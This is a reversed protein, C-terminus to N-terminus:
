VTENISNYWVGEIRRAEEIAAQTTPIDSIVKPVIRITLSLRTGREIIAGIQLGEKNANVVHEAITDSETEEIGHFHTTYAEDTFILLSRPQLYVSMLPSEKLATRFDIMAPGCISLIAVKPFYLPGDKHPMIGQGETYENLLVHNPRQHFVGSSVLREAIELLFQPLEEVLMGRSNPIGGWNQLRRRKLQTWKESRSHIQLKLQLEEEVNIYDPIYFVSDLNGVKYDQWNNIYSYPSLVYNGLLPETTQNTSPESVHSTPPTHPQVPTISPPGKKAGLYKKREEELM